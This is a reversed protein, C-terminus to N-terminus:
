IDWVRINQSESREGTLAIKVMAKLGPLFLCQGGKALVDCVCARGMLTEKCCLWSWPQIDINSLSFLGSYDATIVHGSEFGKQAINTLKCGPDMLLDGSWTQLM